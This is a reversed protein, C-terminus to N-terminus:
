GALLKGFGMITSMVGLIVVSGGISAAVRDIFGTKKAGYLQIGFTVMTAVALTIALWTFASTGPAFIWVLIGGVLAVGWVVFIDRRRPVAVESFQNM